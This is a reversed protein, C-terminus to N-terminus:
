VSVSRWTSNASDYVKLVPSATVTGDVWLTGNVPNSPATNQYPAIVGSVIPASASSDVWIYGDIPSSPESSQYKSGIGKADVTNIDDQLSKLYGAVSSALIEGSNAPITDSGYHYLRLAAQIDAADSYGPIQTNYQGSGDTTGDINEAAM